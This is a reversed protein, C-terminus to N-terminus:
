ASSTGFDVVDIYRGRISIIPDASRIIDAWVLIWENADFGADPAVGERARRALLKSRDDSM